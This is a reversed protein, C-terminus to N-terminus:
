ILQIEYGDNEIRVAETENGYRRRVLEFIVLGLSTAPVQKISNRLFGKYLWRRWGGSLQAHISCQQFTNRYAHYYTRLMASKPQEMKAQKDLYGVSKYYVVQIM